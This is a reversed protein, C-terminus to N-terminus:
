DQDGDPQRKDDSSSAIIPTTRRKKPNQHLCKLIVNYLILDLLECLTLVSGGILLGM